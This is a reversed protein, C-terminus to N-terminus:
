KDGTEDAGHLEPWPETERRARALQHRTATMTEAAEILGSITEEGPERVYARAAKLLATHAQNMEAERMEIDKKM